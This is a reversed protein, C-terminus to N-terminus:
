GLTGLRLFAFTLAALTLVIITMQTSGGAIRERTGLFVFAALLFAIWQM